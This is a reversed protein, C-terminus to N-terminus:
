DPFAGFEPKSVFFNTNGTAFSNRLVFAIGSSRSSELTIDCPREMVQHSQLHLWIEFAGHGLGIKKKMGERM